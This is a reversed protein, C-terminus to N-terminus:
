GSTNRDTNRGGHGGKLDIASDHNPTLAHPVIPRQPGVGIM